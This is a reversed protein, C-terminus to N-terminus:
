APTWRKLLLSNGVVSVSSLSMAAAAFAPPLLVGTWPYFLGMAIPIGIINYLFAWVLNSRIKGMTARGLSLASVADSLDNRVLVIDASELAVESGSGMAIGVDAVALAAADNIGDGIMAVTGAKQLDMVVDAKEHPKIESIVRDIGVSIGIKNAVEERDGTLMVVEIGARKLAAISSESNERIEDAVEIFGIIENNESVLIVTRGLRSRTGIEEEIDRPIEIGLKEMMALNGVGVKTGNMTGSLGLGPFTRVADIKYRECGNELSATNIADAIPHTSEYELGSSISLIRDKSGRIVNIRIARPKGTTITGTKDMVVISTSHSKELATIGKILLGQSAGTGTGVVLATPTALGLACPCAIVLTSVLVMVSIEASAMSSNPAVIDGYVLWFLSALLSACIVVPVFVGSIRDVLRQVPAKGTQAEEVLQIVKSLMTEHVLSTTRTFLTSDMVITGAVVNDGPGKSIPASEGTMMSEDVLGTGDEITGDLPITEGALIKVLSGRPILDVAKKQIEGDENLLRANRPQLRMLGHIADTAKLKAKSELYGGLLVFSIIFSSGDFYVHGSERLFDPVPQIIPALTVSCSWFMAVSTGIHVLVDMNATGNTISKWAGRHFQLGCYLYVFTSLVMALLFRTNLSGWEGFDDVLMTLWFVVCSFSIAIIVLRLQRAVDEENDRRVKLAPVLETAGFGAGIIAEMCERIETQSFREYFSITARELTLNVEAESISDIGDLVKEVSSACAACTMGSVSLRLKRNDM